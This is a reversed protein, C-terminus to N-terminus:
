RLPVHAPREEGRRTGLQADLHPILAPLVGGKPDAAAWDVRQVRARERSQHATLSAVPRHRVEGHRDGVNAARHLRGHGGHGGEEDLVEGGEALDAWSGVPALVLCAHADQDPRAAGAHHRRGVM